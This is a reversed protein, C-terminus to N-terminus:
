WFGLSLQFAIDSDGSLWGLQQQLQSLQMENFHINLIDRWKEGSEPMHILVPSCNLGTWINGVIFIINSFWRKWIPFLVQPAPTPILFVRWGLSPYSFDAYKNPFAHLHKYIQFKLITAWM